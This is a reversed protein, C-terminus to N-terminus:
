DRLRGALEARTRVGLKEFIHVLHTKVTSEAIVLERAIQANTAGTAVRRAVLIERRTLGLQALNLDTEPALPTLTQVYGAELLLQTSRLFAEDSGDFAGDEATKGVRICGLMRGGDRLYIASEYAVRFEPLLEGGYGTARLGKTGGVDAMTLIPRRSDLVHRPAFPDDRRYRSLYEQRAREPDASLRRKAHFIAGGVDDGRPNVPYWGVSQLTIARSIVHLGRAIIARSRDPSHLLADSRDLGAIRESRRARGILM